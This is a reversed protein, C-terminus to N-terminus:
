FYNHKFIQDVFVMKAKAPHQFLATCGFMTLWIIVPFKPPTKTPNAILPLTREVAEVKNEQHKQHEKVVPVVKELLEHSLVTYFFIRLAFRVKQLCDSSSIHWCMDGRHFRVGQNELVDPYGQIGKALTKKYMKTIRTVVMVQQAM